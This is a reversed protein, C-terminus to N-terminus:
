TAASSRERVEFRDYVFQCTCELNTEGERTTFSIEGLMNVWVNTFFIRLIENKFNDTIRLVADVLYESPLAGHVDKNNNIATLWRYLVLWNLFESDVTFEVTWPEFTMRGSDFPIVAGMFTGEIIDLSLGPIITGFINLTLEDTAGLTTETPLKPFVLQFNAPSSKDLNVNIAM